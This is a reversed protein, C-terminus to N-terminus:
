RSRGMVAIRNAGAAKTEDLVVVFTGHSVSEECRLIVPVTPSEAIMPGLKAGLDAVAIEDRNVRVRNEDLLHLEIRLDNGESQAQQGTTRSRKVAISSEFALPTALLLIVVLVLSVDILPTLNVPSSTAGESGQPDQSRFPKMM